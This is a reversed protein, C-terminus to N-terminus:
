ADIENKYNKQKAKESKLVKVAAQIKNSANFGIFVKGFTGEGILKNTYNYKETIGTIRNTFDVSDTSFKTIFTSIVSIKNKGKKFM